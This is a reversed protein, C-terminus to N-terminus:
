RYERLRPAFGLLILAITAAMWLWPLWLWTALGAQGHAAGVTFALQRLGIVQALEGDYAAYGPDVAGVQYVVAARVQAAPQTTILARMHWDDDLFTHFDTNVIGSPLTTMSSEDANFVLQEAAAADSDSLDLLWRSESANMAATEARDAWLAAVSDSGGLDLADYSSRAAGLASFLLVGFILTTVTTLALLPNITRRFARSLRRQALVLLVVTFALLLGCGILLRLITARGDSSPRSEAQQEALFLNHALALAGTGDANMLSSAHDYAQAAGAPPIGLKQGQAPAQDDIYNAYSVYQTYQSLANEIGLYTQPGASVQDIGSGLTELQRNADSQYDEFRQYAVARTEGLGAADGILLIDAARGDMSALDFSLRSAAVVQPEAQTGIVGVRDRVGGVSSTLLLGCALVGLIPLAIWLLLRGPTRTGNSGAVGTM